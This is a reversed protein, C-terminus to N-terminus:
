GKWPAMTIWFRWMIAFAAGALGVVLGLWVGAAGWDLQFALVYSVPVGLVWYSVAAYYMPVKTDEMGRLLGLALVQAGDVTQFLAAMALLLVGIALITPKQPDSPDIFGSLLLEPLSLFVVATILAFGLSMLTGALGVRRLALMDGRGMMQGARITAAQALGLHMMFTLAALQLAIGHAALTEKGIWGMMLASASFLGTESLHTLSIPWGLRFVEGAKAWDPKWFRVFLEHEPFSRVSYWVLVVAIFGTNALSAIAAGKIGLEPAGFKGFILVYNCLANLAVAAVTSWLVISTRELASLYSRMVFVLAGPVMAFGGLVLYDQALAAVDPAQGSWLLLPESVWFIGQLLFALGVALWIGMRTVRRVQVEDGKEHARAVMPMVAYAFGMPLIMLLFFFSGAITIAALDTISYWGLMLTDTTVILFQAVQSGALPIGLRVLARAEAGTSPAPPLDDVTSM